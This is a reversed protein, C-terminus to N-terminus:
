VVSKRDIYGRLVYPEIIETAGQYADAMPDLFEVMNILRELFSRVEDDIYPYDGYKGKNLYTKVEEILPEIDSFSPENTM